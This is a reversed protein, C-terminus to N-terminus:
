QAKEKFSIKLWGYPIRHQEGKQDLILHEIEMSVNEGEGAEIKEIKLGKPENVKVTGIGVKTVVVYTRYEENSIDLWEQKVEAKKAM